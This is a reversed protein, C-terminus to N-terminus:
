KYLYFMHSFAAFGITKDESGFRYKVRKLFVWDNITVMKSNIDMFQNYYMPKKETPMLKGWVKSVADIIITKNDPKTLAAISLFAIFLLVIWIYRKM